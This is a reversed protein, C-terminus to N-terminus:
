TSCTASPPQLDPECFEAAAVSEASRAAKLGLAPFRAVRGPAAWALGRLAGGAWAPGASRM